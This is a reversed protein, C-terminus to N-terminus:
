FLSVVSLFVFVSHLLVVWKSVLDTPEGQIMCLQSPAKSDTVILSNKTPSWTNDEKLKQSNQSTM